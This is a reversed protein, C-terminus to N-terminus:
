YLKIKSKLIGIIHFEQLKEPTNLEIPQYEHNESELIITNEFPVKKLRKVYLEGDVNAIVTDGSKADDVREVLIFEGDKIYPLMSDGTVRIIDLKDFRTIGLINQLFNRDFEMVIPTYSEAYSGFGASAYVDKYYNIHVTDSTNTPTKNTITPLHNKDKLLMEGKGTLLWDLSLNENQSIEELLEYPIKNRKKWTSLTNPKINYKECFELDKSFGMFQYLRALIEDIRNM